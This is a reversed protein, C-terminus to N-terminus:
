SWPRHSSPLFSESGDGRQVTDIYSRKREEDNLFLMQTINWPNRRRRKGALIAGEGDPDKTWEDLAQSVGAMASEKGICGVSPKTMGPPDIGVYVVRDLPFGIAACHGDVIRTKKFDHSVVTLRQPWTFSYRRWFETISFLVNFYSDLAREEVLIRHITEDDRPSLISFYDNV